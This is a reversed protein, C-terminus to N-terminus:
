KLKLNLKVVEHLIKSFKPRHSPNVDWCMLMIEYVEPPCNKPAKMRFGREVQSLTQQNSMGTYPTAGYSFMEWLLIGYSWVDSETSYRGYKLAEPATWKIPIHKIGVSSSYVGDEEQRSMGFDSIKLVNGEGVLVNRAALDRHICHQSELYAMGAAAQEAFRLLDKIWLRIGERRLFTLFDGGPVLEMIIYIPQKWPCVGILKVINPHDYKRLIRAELLFKNKIEPPLCERCTKVAVPTNDYALRGSYVEGFNGAGLLEGLLVDEHDLIWKAKTIPRRLLVQSKKTLVQRNKLHFNILLPITPFRKGDLEFLYENNICQIIFHKCQGEALVSVVYEGPKGHSERVLFDGNSTLLCRTEQRPIAGYYWDQQTLPRDIAPVLPLPPPLQIPKVDGYGNNLHHKQYSNYSM